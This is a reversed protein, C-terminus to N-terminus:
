AGTGSGKLSELFAAPGEDYLDHGRLDVVVTVPFDEVELATIAEPGLDDYAVPLVRRVSRALLAAAGGTAGFYVAGFGVMARVVEASRRGKGIMGRLGLELLLPTYPDMRGSTTPGIAGVARGPPTPSPGAYYIM